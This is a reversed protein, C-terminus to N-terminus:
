EGGEGKLGQAADATMVNNTAVHKVSPQCRTLGQAANPASMRCLKAGIRPEVFRRNRSLSVRSLIPILANGRVEILGLLKQYTVQDLRVVRAM